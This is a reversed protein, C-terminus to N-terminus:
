SAVTALALKKDYEGNGLQNLLSFHSKLAAYFSKHHHYPIGFEKATKKVIPAISSYHIHCINPFLHHEIQHNLGGVIWSFWSSSNAFNSTTHLQHIAWNNEVSGKEDVEYFQTENIVHAPQFILALILGSIFQMLLFGLAVQWWIVSTMLIPGVLTLMIYWSKHFLMTALGKSFSLGQAKLLNRKNYRILQDLDKAILWYFTMLGYLIPAYFAQFKFFSRREQHPSFRIIGKKDIDEDYENINTFSHHLVNHQIKWNIHYAGIFNATFGLAKNVLNNKSYVGHNADHMVCLGIGAMGFGMVFFMAIVLGVSNIIGSLMLVLPIFYLLLMFATKIKMRNNAYKTIKQDKFYQNVRLRLTSVFERNDTTNFKVTNKNM